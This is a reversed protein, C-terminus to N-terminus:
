GAADFAARLWGALEADVEDLASFRVTYQCMGGAPVAKLRAAPPLDKVNLGLEVATQTAPGLMAFQKKRRLSIYTKKPAQEFVGMPAVLAMVADHLPRLGAKKGSYLADLVDGVVAAPPPPASGDLPPLPKGMLLAVTNADGYGLGLQEMLLSRREGTKQLGSATLLEHLAPITKGTRAQINRLQTVLAAQPDAM